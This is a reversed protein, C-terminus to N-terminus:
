NVSILKFNLAKVNRNQRALDMRAVDLKVNKIKLVFKAANKDAFDM